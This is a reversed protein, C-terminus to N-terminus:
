PSNWRFIVTLGEGPRLYSGADPNQMKVISIQDPGEAWEGDVDYLYVVGQNALYVFELIDRGSALEGFHSEYEDPTMGHGMTRRLGELDEYTYGIFSPVRILNFAPDLSIPAPEWLPPTLESSDFLRPPDIEGRSLRVGHDMVANILKTYASIAESLFESDPLNNFFSPNRLAFELDNRVQIFRLKRERADRLAYTFADQEELTPIPLPLTEYSAIEVEYASPHDRAIRPFIRLRELVEAITRTSSTRLGSGANQYMMVTYESRTSAHLNAKNYELSFSGSAVLLNAEAQLTTALSEQKERSVSTIRIIAFFEGGTQLGRVFSDGFANYFRDLDYRDLLELASPTLQFNRGRTLPNRVICRAIMFTSRSNYSSADAFDAKVGGSFFAYRGQAEFSLGLTEMLENHTNVISISSLVEMGSAHPDVSVNFGHLATGVALGTKTNFGMGIEEDNYLVRRIQDAM